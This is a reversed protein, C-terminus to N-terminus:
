TVEGRQCVIADGFIEWDTPRTAVSRYIETVAKNVPLDEAYGDDSVVLYRGDSLPSLSPDHVHKRATDMNFPGLEQETGDTRYLKL